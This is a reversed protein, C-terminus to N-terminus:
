KAGELAHLKLELHRIRELFVLMLGLANQELEFDSKLRSLTRMSVLTHSCFRLASAASDIETASDSTSINPPINNPILAGIEVLHQLDLASLGSLAILELMSVEHQEDLWILESIEMQM